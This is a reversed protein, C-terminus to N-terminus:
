FPFFPVRGGDEATSPLCQPRLGGQLDPPTNNVAAIMADAPWWAAHGDAFGLNNGGFHRAWPKRMSPDTWFKIVDADSFTCAGESTGCPRCGCAIAAPGWMIRCLEPYAIHEIWYWDGTHMSREAIVVTKAADDMSSEKKERLMWENFGYDLEVAGTEPGAWNMCGGETQTGGWGLPYNPQCLCLEGEISVVFAFWDPWPIIHEVTSIVKAGPCRYVDRNKVYEDLVVPWRLYPNANQMDFNLSNGVAEMWAAVEPRHEKPPFANYDGLYMQVALALNKVNSLCVAKRASERARAFVPFVMAALIGIIAIVVLLEILTFGKLKRPNM